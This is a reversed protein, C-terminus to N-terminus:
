VKGFEDVGKLYKDLEEKTKFNLRHNLVYERRYKVEEIAEKETKFTAQRPNNRYLKEDPYDKMLTVQYTNSETKHYGTARTINCLNGYGDTIILNEDRNDLGNGNLHDIVWDKYAESNIGKIDRHITNVYYTQNDKKINYYNSNLLEYSKSNNDMIWYMDKYKGVGLNVEIYKGKDNIKYRKFNPKYNFLIGDFQGALFSSSRIGGELRFGEFDTMLYSYLRNQNGVKKKIVDYILVQFQKGLYEICIYKGKCEEWNIRNKHKGTKYKPLETIIKGEGKIRTM